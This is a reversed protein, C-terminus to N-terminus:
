PAPGLALGTFTQNVHMAAFQEGYSSFGIVNNRAFLKGMEQRLQRKEAQLTRLVCDFGIVLEPPGIEAHITEFLARLQTLADEQTALRLVVGEDIACFFALSGDPNARRISRIYFDGGARVMLPHEAFVAPTLEDPPLGILRAYERAAPEANIETVLRRAPDAGTVVLRVPTATFHQARFLRIPRRLRALTLLAADEHFRGRHYVHTHRLRLGDGASAGFIPMASLGGQISSLVLEESASMGDILLMAFGHPMQAGAASGALRRLLTQAAAHGQGPQFRSLADIRESVARCESAALSFGTIGGEVYGVPTIEGATTCGIIDIGQFRADIERALADLDYDPSCFFVALGTEPQALAAHLEAAAEAPASALSHGRRIGNPAGPM